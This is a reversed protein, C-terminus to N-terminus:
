VKGLSCGRERKNEEWKQPQTYLYLYGYIDTTLVLTGLIHGKIAYKQEQFKNCIGKCRCIDQTKKYRKGKPTPNHKVGKGEFLLLLAHM